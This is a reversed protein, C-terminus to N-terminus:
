NELIGHTLWDAVAQRNSKLVFRKQDQPNMINGLEIYVTAPHSERVMHLNRTTVKGSYGRGKQYIKYNEKITKQLQNALKKGHKSNSHHYFFMDARKSKSQSDIHIVIMYQNKNAPKNKLYLSNVMDSRQKLRQKQNLPIVQNKWCIEDKDCPLIDNSRIGDNTDRIILYVTANHALLNKALRLTIDYSYEDECLSQNGYNGIAGPDPGGHGSVLYYISNKLKDDIITVSQHAKGFIPYDKLTKKEIRLEFNKIFCSNTLHFPVWLEGKKFNDMKLSNNQVTKNYSEIKKALEFDNIGITSRISNGNYQYVKIPLFYSKGALILEKQKLNNLKCFQADNCSFNSLQYKNFIAILMDGKVVPIKLQKQAILIIPLIFFIVIISKKM